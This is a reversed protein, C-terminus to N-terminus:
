YFYEGKAMEEEMKGKNRAFRGKETNVPIEGEEKGLERMEGPYDPEELDKM